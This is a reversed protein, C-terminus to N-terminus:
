PPICLPSALGKLVDQDGSVPVSVVVVCPLVLLVALPMGAQRCLRQTLNACPFPVAALFTGLPLLLSCCPLHRAEM